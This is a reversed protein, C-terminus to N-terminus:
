GQSEDDESLPPFEPYRPLQDAFDIWSLHRDHWYHLTPQVADPDDLSGLSIDVLGPLFEATFSIQSGCRPCFGRSAQASSQYQNLEAGSFVVQESSYLAWAVVPAAHARRCMSCHCIAAMIPEGSIVYRCDGCQCGGQLHNETM